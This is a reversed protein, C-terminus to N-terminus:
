ATHQYKQQEAKYVEVYRAWALEQNPLDIRWENEHERLWEEWPISKGNAEWEGRRQHLWESKRQGLWDQKQYTIQDEPTTLDLPTYPTNKAQMSLLAQRRQQEARRIRQLGQAINPAGRMAINIHHQLRVCHRHKEEGALRLCDRGNRSAPIAVPCPPLEGGLVGIQEQLWTVHAREETAFQRLHECDQAYHMRQAYQDLCAIDRVLEYYETSLMDLLMQSDDSEPLALLRTWRAQLTKLGQSFLERVMM